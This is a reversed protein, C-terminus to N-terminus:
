ATHSHSIIKGCPTHTKKCNGCQILCNLEAHVSYPLLHKHEPCDRRFVDVLCDLVANGDSCGIQFPQIFCAAAHIAPIVLFHPDMDLHIGAHVPKTSGIDPFDAAHDFFNVVIFMEYIFTDVTMETRGVN